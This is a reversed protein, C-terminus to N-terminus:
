IMLVCRYLLGRAADLTEISFQESFINCLKAGYGNRGGTIKAVSDDFNSGTLLHGMVKTLSHAVSLADFEVEYWNLSTFTRQRIFCYLFAVVM